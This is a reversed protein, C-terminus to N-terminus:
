LRFRMRGVASPHVCEGEEKRGRKDVTDAQSGRTTAAWARQPVGRGVDGLICWVVGGRRPEWLGWCEGGASVRKNAAEETWQTQRRAEDLEQALRATSEAAQQLVEGLMRADATAQNLQAM